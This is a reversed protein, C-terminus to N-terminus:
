SRERMRLVSNLGNEYGMEEVLVWAVRLATVPPDDSERIRTRANSINRNIYTEAIEDADEYVSM